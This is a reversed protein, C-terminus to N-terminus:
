QFRKIYGSFEDFRLANKVADNLELDIEEFEIEDWLMRIM